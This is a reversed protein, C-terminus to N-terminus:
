IHRKTCTHVHTRPIYRCSQVNLTQETHDFANWPSKVLKKEGVMLHSNGVATYGRWCKTNDSKKFKQWDSLCISDQPKRNTNKQMVEKKPFFFFKKRLFFFSFVLQWTLMKKKKRQLRPFHGMPIKRQKKKKKGLSSFHNSPFHNQM